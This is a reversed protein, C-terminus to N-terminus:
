MSRDEGGPSGGIILKTEVSKNRNSLEPWMFTQRSMVTELLM